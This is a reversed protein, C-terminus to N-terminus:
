FPDDAFIRKGPKRMLDAQTATIPTIVIPPAVFAAFRGHAATSPDIRPCAEGGRESDGIGPLSMYPPIPRAAPPNLFASVGADPRGLWARQAATNNKPESDVRVIEGTIGVTRRGRDNGLTARGGAAPAFVSHTLDRLDDVAARAAGTGIQTSGKYMERTTTTFPNYTSEKSAERTAATTITTADLRVSDPIGEGYAYAAENLTEACVMGFRPAAPKVIRETPSTFDVVHQSKIERFGYDPLVGGRLPPATTRDEVWNGMLTNSSWNIM